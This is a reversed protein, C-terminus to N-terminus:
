AKGNRVIFNYVSLDSDLVTINFRAGTSTKIEAESASGYFQGVAGQSESVTCDTVEWEGSEIQRLYAVASIHILSLERPPQPIEWPTWRTPASVCKRAWIPWRRLEAPM